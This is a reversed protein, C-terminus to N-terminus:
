EGSYEKLLKNTKKRNESSTIIQLNWSVHLGCVEKGMLPVIHDVEFKRGSKMSMEVCAKHIEKCATDDYKGLSAELERKRRANRYSRRSLLGKETNRYKKRHRRAKEQNKSKWEEVKASISEKNETYYEKRYDLISEKNAERWQAQYEAIKEKNKQAYLKKLERDREINEKRWEKNKQLLKEKNALYYKRKKEAIEEPTGKYPM